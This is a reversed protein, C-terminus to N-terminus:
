DSVVKKIQKSTIPGHRLIEIQRNSIKVVTSPKRKPLKGANIIIDPKFKQNKFQKIVDQASYCDAQGSLNASTATIPHKLHKSLDLAVQNNPMRIGLFGTKASLVVEGRQRPASRRQLLLSVITLPGPWFKKALASAAVNWKVIKKAYAVSPVVVHVPKNFNRGKIRYLKKIARINIADVALGYTTDTPYVVAKGNQLAQVVAKIIQSHNKKIYDIVIM